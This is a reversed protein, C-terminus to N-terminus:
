SITRCASFSQRFAKRRFLRDFVAVSRSISRNSKQATQPIARGAVIGDTPLSVRLSFSSFDGSETRNKGKRVITLRM